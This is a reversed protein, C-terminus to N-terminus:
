PTILDHINENYIELFSVQVNYSTDQGKDINMQDFIENMTNFMIGPEEPTGIMTHTKGAGTAGYAFVTSNQGNLVPKVLPLTSKEFVDRQSSNPDFVLDFEFQKSRNRYYLSGAISKSNLDDDNFENFEILNHNLAELM